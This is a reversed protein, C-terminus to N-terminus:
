VVGRLKGRVERTLHVNSAPVVRLQYGYRKRYFRGERVWVRGLTFWVGPLRRSLAVVV